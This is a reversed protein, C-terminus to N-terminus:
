GGSPSPYNRTKQGTGAPSRRHILGRRRATTRLRNYAQDHAPLHGATVVTTGPRPGRLAVGHDLHFLRAAALVAAPHLDGVALGASQLGHAADAAPQAPPGSDLLALARLLAPPPPMGTAAAQLGGLVTQVRQRSIQRGAAVAAASGALAPDHLGLWDVAVGISAPRFPFTRHVLLSLAVEFPGPAGCAPRTAAPQRRTTLLLPAVVRLTLPQGRRGGSGM